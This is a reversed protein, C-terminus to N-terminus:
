EKNKKQTRTRSGKQNFVSPIQKWQQWKADGQAQAWLLRGMMAYLELRKPHQMDPIADMMVRDFMPTPVAGLGAHIELWTPHQVGPSTSREFLASATAAGSSEKSTLHEHVHSYQKRQWEDAKHQLQRRFHLPAKDQSSDFVPRKSKALLIKHLRTKAKAKAGRRVPTFSNMTRNKHVM